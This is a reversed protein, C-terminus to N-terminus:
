SACISTKIKSAAAEMKKSYVTNLSKDERVVKGMVIDYDCQKGTGHIPFKDNGWHTGGFYIKLHFTILKALLELKRLTTCM